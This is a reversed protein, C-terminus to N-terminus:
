CSERLLGGMNIGLAFRRVSLLAVIASTASGSNVPQAVPTSLVAAAVPKVVVVDSGAVAAIMRNRSVALQRSRRQQRILPDGESNKNEDRIERKTMRTHKRNRRMGVFMDVAALALGGELLAALSQTRVDIM